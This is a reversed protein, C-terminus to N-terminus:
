ETWLQQQEEPFPTQKRYFIRHDLRPDFQVIMKAVCRGLKLQNGHAKTSRCRVAAAVTHPQVGSPTIRVQYIRATFDVRVAPCSRHLKLADTISGHVQCTTVAASGCSVKQHRCSKRGLTPRDAAVVLDFLDTSSLKIPKKTM